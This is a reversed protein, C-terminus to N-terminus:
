AVEDCDEAFKSTMLREICYIIVAQLRKDKINYNLGRFLCLVISYNEVQQSCLM